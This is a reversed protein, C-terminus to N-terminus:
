GVSSSWVVHATAAAFTSIKQNIAAALRDAFRRMAQIMVASNHVRGSM